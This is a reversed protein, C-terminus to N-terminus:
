ENTKQFLLNLTQEIRHTLPFNNMPLTDLLDLRKVSCYSKMVLEYGLSSFCALLEDLNLFWHEMKSEYYNQLTVFTPIQGAFVDALSIYEANYESLQKLVDKWNEFYQLVSSTHVLDYESPSPLKNLFNVSNKKSFLSRGQECVEDVEVIHYNLKDKYDPISEMLTMYGIGLGGGLDLIDLKNKNALMVAVIPPLLTNRQKHFSPIPNGEDLAMLCEKAAILVRSNYVDGNFGMGKAKQRAQSFTDFIGEWIYFENEM